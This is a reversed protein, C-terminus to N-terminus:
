NESADSIVFFVYWNRCCPKNTPLNCYKTASCDSTQSPCPDSHYYCVCDPFDCFERPKNYCCPKNTDLNCYDTASCDSLGSPCPDGKYYCICNPYDCLKQGNAWSFAFIVLLLIFLKAEM